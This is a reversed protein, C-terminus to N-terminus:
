LMVRRLLDLASQASQSRVQERGGLFRFTRARHGNAWAAAVVVTGVPKEATGGGPGAIGTVSVALDAGARALIGTAMAVAVPESVAGHEEILASPVGLLDTKSANSYCVVGREVYASSGPVNTLRSAV